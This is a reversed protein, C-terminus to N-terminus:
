SDIGNRKWYNAGYKRAEDACIQNFEMIHSGPMYIYNKYPAILDIVRRVEARLEEETTQPCCVCRNTDLACTFVVRDAYNKEMFEFDNAFKSLNILDIGCDLMEGILDTITGCSHHEFLCGMDHVAKVIRTMHPKFTEIWMNKSMMPANQIGFDDLNRIVDPKYWKIARTFLDIKYDSLATLLEQTAEPEEYLAIFAEEFGMLAHMREFIGSEFRLAIIQNERDLNETAKKSEGEWDIADLNPFKVQEKWKTIDTLIHPQHPDQVRGMTPADFLWKCGFWDYGDYGMKPREALIGDIDFTYMYDPAVPVWEPHGLHKVVQFYNERQTLAM